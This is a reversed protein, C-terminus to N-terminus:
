WYCGNEILHNNLPTDELLPRTWNENVFAQVGPNHDWRGGQIGFYLQTAGGLHIGIKGQKKAHVALPLSYAGAGILAVDFDISSMQRQMGDLAAFWDVHEPLVLAPSLPAKLTLLEFAPLIDEQGQWIQLRRSYQSQITAEFPHIVLVKKDRLARTWRDKTLGYSELAILPIRAAGPAYQRVIAAEGLNFWVAMVTMAPLVQEIMLLSYAEFTSYDLPFVGANTFLVQRDPLTLAESEANNHWRLYKRIAGLEVSGLKGIAQPAGSTLAQYLLSGGYEVNWVRLDVYKLAEIRRITDRLRSGNLMPRIFKRVQESYM